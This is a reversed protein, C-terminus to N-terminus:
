KRRQVFLKGQFSDSLKMQHQLENLVQRKNLSWLPAILQNKPGDGTVRHLVIQPSLREMCGILLRLYHEVSLVEFKGAVYDAALDTGQLVHLLQLKLGFPSCRNLYEITEYMAYDDEGPLGLIVHVIVPISLEKLQMLANDFVSLPYGRRIYSASAEHITQLGLEIWIFKDPYQVQLEHLLSLVDAGLCDPRTAISIGVVQPTDLAIRYIRELTEVPAYTNTFAQFYAIFLCDKSPKKQFLSLGKQIQPSISSAEPNTSLSCAYDGSGAQSCFICGKTGIRGDRTPCTFGADIAIKYLKKGYNNKCWADLSYYRKGHWETLDRMM